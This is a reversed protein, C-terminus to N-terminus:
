AARRRRVMPFVRAGARGSAISRPARDRRAAEKAHATAAVAVALGALSLRVTEGRRLVLQARALSALTQQVDGLDNERRGRSVRQAIDELTAPAPRRSLQLLARLVAIETSMSAM